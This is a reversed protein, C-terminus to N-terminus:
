VIKLLLLFIVLLFLIMIMLIHILQKVWLLLFNEEMITVPVEKAASGELDAVNSAKFVAFFFLKVIISSM